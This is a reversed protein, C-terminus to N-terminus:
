VASLRKAELRELVREYRAVHRTPTELFTMFMFYGLEVREGDRKVAVVFRGLRQDGDLSGFGRIEEWRVSKCWPWAGRVGTGTVVVTIRLLSGVLVLLGPALLITMVAADFPEDSAILGVIYWTL